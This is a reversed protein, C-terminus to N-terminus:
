GKPLTGAKKVHELFGASCVRPLKAGRTSPVTLVQLM